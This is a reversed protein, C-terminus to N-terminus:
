HVMLPIFVKNTLMPHWEAAGIDPFNRAFGDVDMPTASGVAQDKAPSTSQLHYDYNPAGPSVFGASSASLMTNAGNLTGASGLNAGVNSLLTNGAWLGRTLNATNNPAVRLASENNSNSHEAIISYAINAVTPTAAGYNLLLVGQGGMSANGLRNRAITSHTISTDTGQLWLGGGGGGVSNNTGGGLTALNDAIIANTLASTSSGSLRVIAIRGGGASGMYVQGTGGRATNNIVSARELTFNSNFALVGGGEALGAASTLTAANVGNGGQAVNNTVLADYVTLTAIEAYLGGGFGGGGNGFPAAGGTANNNIATVNQLVVNSGVQFAAGGGQGDALEGTVSDIGSGSASGAIASNGTFTLYRATLITSNYTFLGGGIAYGGRELGSGGRAVNNKFTLWELSSGNPASLIALGGGAGAGGYRLNTNEGVSQNSDFVINRLTVLSLEIYMGGGFAFISQDGPRAPMGRAIGNRITFGEMRLSTAPGTMTVWVGRYTSQGDIVTLNASPNAYTWNATAYGGLITVQKNIICVVATSGLTASCPDNNRNFVYTGAAVLLTDGNSAQNVAYQISACPQVSTGCGAGDWGTTAVYWTRAAAQATMLASQNWFLVSAFLAVTLLRLGFRFAIWQQSSHM